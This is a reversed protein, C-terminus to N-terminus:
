GLMSRHVPRDKFVTRSLLGQLLCCELPRNIKENEQPATEDERANMHGVEFVDGALFM